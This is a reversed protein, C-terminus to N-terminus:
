SPRAHRLCNGVLKLHEAKFAGPAKGFVGARGRAFSRPQQPPDIHRVFQHRFQWGPIIQRKQM